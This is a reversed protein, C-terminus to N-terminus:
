FPDFINLCIGAKRPNQFHRLVTIPLTRLNAGSIYPNIQETKQRDAFRQGIKSSLYAALYGPRVGENPILLAVDQNIALPQSPTDFFPYAQCIRRKITCLVGGKVARMTQFEDDFQEQTIRKLKEEAFYLPGVCEVTIFGVDGQSIDHKYPTHGSGIQGVVKSLPVFDRKGQIGRLWAIYENVVFEADLRGASFM